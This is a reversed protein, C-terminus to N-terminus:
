HNEHRDLSKFFGIQSRIGILNHYALSCTIRASALLRELGISVSSRRFDVGFRFRYRDPFDITGAIKFHPRNKDIWASEVFVMLYPHVRYRLATCFLIKSESFIPVQLYAGVM